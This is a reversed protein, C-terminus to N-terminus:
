LLKRTFQVWKSRVSLFNFYFFYINIKVWKNQALLVYTGINLVFKIFSTKCHGVCFNELYVKIKILASELYDIELYIKYGVINANVWRQKHKSDLCVLKGIWLNELESCMSKSLLMSRRKYFGSFHTMSTGLRIVLYGDSLIFLLVCKIYQPRMIVM